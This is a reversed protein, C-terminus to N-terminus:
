DEYKFSLYFKTGQGVQSEFWIKGGQLETFEKCLLSGLGVGRENNTGYTPVANLKFLSSKVTEDMGMGNDEVLIICDNNKKLASVNVFGGSQTFKIANSVLNRIVLEFMDPDAVIILNDESTVNLTIGKRNAVNKKINLGNIIANKVDIPILNAKTGELQTKSWSLVNTLMNSTERTTELLQHRLNTIEQESLDIQDFHELFGQITNLPSRVDHTVISFLKDKEINLKELRENQAEIALSKEIVLNREQDYNNRIYTIIMYTLIISSFYTTSYDALKNISNSYSIVILNPFFYEILLISIVTLSNLAMWFKFQKKPVIAITLLFGNLFSLLNPGFIGSNAFYNATYFIISFTAFLNIALISKRKYRSLYFFYVLPFTFFICLIAPVFLGASFNFITGFNLAIFSIICITNFIREELSFEETNGVLSKFDFKENLLNIM